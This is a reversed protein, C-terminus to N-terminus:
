REGGSPPAVRLADGFRSDDDATSEAAAARRNFRTMAAEPGRVLIDEVADAAQDVALAIQRSEEPQFPALVYDAPEMQAPRGIGIRVRNFEGTGLEDLISRLGNHGGHGGKPRVRIMGVPLDLDDCIVILGGPSMRYYRLLERVATGSLNMYTQPKALWVSQGGIAGRGTLCYGDKEDVRIGWRLALRDLADWGVNHRTDRYRKGPNGLGVILRM